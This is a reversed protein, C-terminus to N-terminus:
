LQRGRLASLIKDLENSFIAAGAENTHDAVFQRRFMENVGGQTSVPGTMTGANNGMNYAETQAAAQQQQYSAIFKNVDAESLYKGFVQQAGSQIMARIDDPNTLQIQLPAKPTADKLGGSAEIQALAEEWTMGNANATALLSKFVAQSNPDWIGPTYNSLGLAELRAQLAIM